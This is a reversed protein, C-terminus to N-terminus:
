RYMKSCRDVLTEHAFADATSAQIEFSTSGLATRFPVTAAAYVTRAKLKAGAPSWLAFVTKDRQGDAPTQYSFNFVVFRPEDQPLSAAIDNHSSDMPAAKDISISLDNM